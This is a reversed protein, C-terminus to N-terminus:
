GTKRQIPDDFAGELIDMGPPPTIYMSDLDPVDPEAHNDADMVTQTFAKDVREEARSTLPVFVPVTISMQLLEKQARWSLSKRFLSKYGFDRSMRYIEADLVVDGAHIVVDQPLSPLLKKLRNFAGENVPNFRCGRRGLLTIYGDITELDMEIFARIRCSKRRNFASFGWYFLIPISLYLLWVFLVAGLLAVFLPVFKRLLGSDTEDTTETQTKSALKEELEAPLRQKTSPREVEAEAQPQRVNESLSSSIVSRTPSNQAPSRPVSKHTDIDQGDVCMKSRNAILRVAARGDEGWRTRTGNVLEVAYGRVISMAIVLAPNEEANEVETAQSRDLNRIAEAIWARSKETPLDEVQHLVDLLTVLHHAPGSILCEDASAFAKQPYFTAGIAAACLFLTALYKFAFVM